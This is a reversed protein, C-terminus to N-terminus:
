WGGWGSTSCSGCMMRFVPGESGVLSVRIRWASRPSDLVCAKRRSSVNAAYELWRGNPSVSTRGIQVTREMLVRREGSAKESVFPSHPKPPLAASEVARLLRLSQWAWHKEIEVWNWADLHVPAVGLRATVSRFARQYAASEAPTMYKVGPWSLLAAGEPEDAVRAAVVNGPPVECWEEFRGVNFAERLYQYQTFRPPLHQRAEASPGM